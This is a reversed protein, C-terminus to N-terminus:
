AEIPTAFEAGEIQEITIDGYRRDQAVTVSRQKVLELLALFSVIVETRSTAESLVASFRVKGGKGLSSFLNRIRQIKEHISVVREIVAKPVKVLPELRAIVGRYLVAMLEGNLKKPPAFGIEIQPLKDHVYLFRRTGIIAEIKKSAELYEKYIRLQAGLDGAEEVAAVELFPLLARSKILLLKSAIVLFDALEEPPIEPHAEVYHLYSDTVRALAIESIELKEEEILKLLLDLPGQFQDLTVSYM